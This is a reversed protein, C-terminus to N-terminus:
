KKDIIKKAADLVSTINDAIWKKDLWQQPRVELSQVLIGFHLHDGLALGSVGTNAIVQGAKVIDGQNVNVSSCHAYLSYLGFGHDIIINLGYIGNEGVYAVVGDNSSVISAQAVSAFDIGMHWSESVIEGNYSFYRHDAFDAVKKGNKLPYFPLIKFNEISTEDVGSTVNKILVENEARLTENIFKMKDLRSLLSPDKAYQDTLESIKGDLFSDKLPITSTKYKVNQLFYRIHSRGENGARDTAIVDASFNEVDVPWVVLSAYYGDKYFPTAKFKKGYNTKVYVEKLDNDTAKFVVIASGGKSISYSHSLVNVDPRTTDLIVQINKQTKNGTFFGWKSFDVAEIQMEYSDKQNFFSTKPITLNVDLETIPEQMVQNLLNSTNTGDNMSIRIFKIGSDDKFKINLPTRLNWYIKDQILIEPANRELMKSNLIAFVGYLVAGLLILIIFYGPRIGRKKM